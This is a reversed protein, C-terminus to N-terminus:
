SAKHKYKSYAYGWGEFTRYILLSFGHGLRWCTVIFGFTVGFRGSGRVLSGVVLPIMTDYIGSIEHFILFMIILERRDIM